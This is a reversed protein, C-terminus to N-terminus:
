GNRVVSTQFTQLNHGTVTLKGLRESNARLRFQGKSDTRGTNIIKDNQDRLTVMVDSLVRDNMDKVTVVVDYKFQADSTSFFEYSVKAFTPVKTRVVLSPDGFLNFVELNDQVQETLGLQEIMYFQGALLSGALTQVPREFHSKSIGLAMVAPEDWTVRGSPGYYAVAGSDLGNYMHNVWTKGFCQSNKDFAGNSCSVDVVIPLKGANQLSGVSSSNFVAGNLSRWSDASGMGLYTLWSRGENIAKIINQSTATGRSQEYTDVQAGSELLISRKIHEAYQSDSYSGGVRNSAITMEHSYWSDVSDALKEYEINRRVQRVVEDGNNAVLRGVLMDPIVDTGSLLVYPLDSAVSGSATPRQFTPMKDANGVLMLYSPKPDRTDYYTQMFQKAAEATGGVSSLTFVEVNLGKDQKWTVFEALYPELEDAAIIVMTEPQFPKDEHSRKGHAIVSMISAGNAAVSGAVQMLSRGVSTYQGDGQVAQDNAKFNVRLKLKAWVRLTNDAFNMQVPNLSVRALRIGQMLGLEQIVAAKEPFRAGSSYINQNLPL